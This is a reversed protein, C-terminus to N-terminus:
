ERRYSFLLLSYPIVDNSRFNIDSLPVVLLIQDSCCIAGRIWRWKIKSIDLEYFNIAVAQTAQLYETPFLCYITEKNFKIKGFTTKLRFVSFTFCQPVWFITVKDSCLFYSKLYLPDHM